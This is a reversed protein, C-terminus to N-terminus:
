GVFLDEIRQADLLRLSTAKLQDSKLLAIRKHIPPPIVGFKKEILGLLLERQGEAHKQRLWPGLVEDDMIDEQIPMKSAERKVEAILKRLGAIISLEALAEDREEPPGAQIRKLVRRVADPESGLRTLIAIVNDGTNDSALLVEGDLDRIDVLHFRFTWGPGKIEGKMRLPEAGVYLAVQRPLRGYRLAVAFSYEGMRLPFDKENRSQLEIHVLGGDPSEGLLDVRLNRVLPAEVNLWRLSPSGTLATLLLSGPRTLIRKLAVDYEHMGARISLPRSSPFNEKVEPRGDAIRLVPSRALKAANAFRRAQGGSQGGKHPRLRKGWGRVRLGCFPSQARIEGGKRIEPRDGKQGKSCKACVSDEFFSNGRHFHM